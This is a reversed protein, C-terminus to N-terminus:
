FPASLPRTEWRPATYINLTAVHPHQALVAEPEDLTGSRHAARPVSAAELFVSVPDSHQATM